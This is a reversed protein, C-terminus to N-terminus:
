LERQGEGALRSEGVGVAAGDDDARGPDLVDEDDM